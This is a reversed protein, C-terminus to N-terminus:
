QHTTNLDQSLVLAMVFVFVAFGEVVGAPVLSKGFIDPKDISVNIAMACCQGQYIGCFLRAVGALVGIAFISGGTAPSINARLIFMLVIGFIAHTSPLAAAGIFKGHSRDTERMAEIAAVGSLSCGIVSGMASLSVTAILGIYALAVLIRDM